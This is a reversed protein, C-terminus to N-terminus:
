CESIVDEATRSKHKETCASLAALECLAFREPLIRLLYVIVQPVQYIDLWDTKFRTSCPQTTPTAAGDSSCGLQYFNDGARCGCM